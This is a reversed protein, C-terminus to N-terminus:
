LGGRPMNVCTAIAGFCRNGHQSVSGPKVSAQVDIGFSLVGSSERIVNGVLKLRATTGVTEDAVRIGHNLSSDPNQIENYSISGDVQHAVDISGNVLRNHLVKFKYAVATNGLTNDRAEVNTPIAPTGVLENDISTVNRSMLSANQDTGGAGISIAKCAGIKNAAITVDEM